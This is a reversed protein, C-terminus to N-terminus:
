ADCKARWLVTCPLPAQVYSFAFKSSRLNAKDSSWVQRPPMTDNMCLNLGTCVSALRTYFSACLWRRVSVLFLRLCLVWKRKLNFLLVFSLLLNVIKVQWQPACRHLDRGHFIWKVSAHAEVLLPPPSPPLLLLLLLLLSSSLTSSSWGLLLLVAGWWM